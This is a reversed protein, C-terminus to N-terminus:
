RSTNPALCPMERNEAHGPLVDGTLEKGQARVRTNLGRHLVVHTGPTM